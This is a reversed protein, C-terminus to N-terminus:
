QPARKGAPLPIPKQRVDDVIHGDRFTIRRGAWLAIEPEHTVIVVTIGERNLDTFLQMIEESTKSDLAGTPEDALLIKPNNVIARAIAVRQQQGGSLQRPTHSIRNELGVQALRRRAMEEGNEPRPNAYLLPLMVQKLASTRPLLNFQQFVFGITRNRLDALEDVSLRGIDRGDILLEGSTPVDLAGIMNMMTSKGSGSPGMIAVFDGDAIDLSVHDLAALDEGGLRYIKTLDRASILPRATADRGPEPAAAADAGSPREIVTM